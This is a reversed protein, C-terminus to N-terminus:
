GTKNRTTFFPGSPPLCATGAGPCNDTVTPAFTAVAGCQGPDNAKTINAPCTISPPQTDNVTVTFTCSATNSSSDTVTCTVTTTGKPFFLGSAPSCAPTGVGPCNDSATAAPSTAVAG